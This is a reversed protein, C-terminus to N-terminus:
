VPRRHVINLFLLISHKQFKSGDLRPQFVFRTHKTTHRTARSRQINIFSTPQFGSLVTIFLFLMYHCLSTLLHKTICMHQVYTNDPPYVFTLLTMNLFPFYNQAFYNTFFYYFLINYLKFFFIFFLFLFQIHRNFLFTPKILAVPNIIAVLLFLLLFEPFIYSKVMNSWRFSSPYCLFSYKM